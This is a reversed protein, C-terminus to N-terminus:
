NNRSQVVRPLFVSAPAEFATIIDEFDEPAVANTNMQFQQQNWAKLRMTMATHFLYAMTVISNFLELSLFSFSSWQTPIWRWNLVASLLLVGQGMCGFALCFGAARIRRMIPRYTYPNKVADSHQKLMKCVIHSQIWLFEGYIISLLACLIASAQLLMLLVSVLKENSNSQTGLYSILLVSVPSAIASLLTFLSMGLNLATINRFWSHRVNFVEVMRDGHANSADHEYVSKARVYEIGIHHLTSSFSSIPIISGGGYKSEIATPLPANLTINQCTEIDIDLVVRFYDYTEEVPDWSEYGGVDNEVANMNIDTIWAMSGIRRIAVDQGISFECSNTVSFVHIHTYPMALVMVVLRILTLHLM